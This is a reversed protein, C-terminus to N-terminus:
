RYRIELLSEPEMGWSNPITLERLSRLNDNQLKTPILKAEIPFKVLIVQKLNNLLLNLSRMENSCFFKVWNFSNSIDSLWSVPWKGFFTNRPPDSSFNVASLLWKIPEIGFDILFQVKYNKRNLFLKAHSLLCPCLSHCVNM